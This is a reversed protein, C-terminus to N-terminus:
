EGPKFILLYEPRAADDTYVVAEDYNVTLNPEGVVSDYGPPAETLSHDKHTVKCAKGMIVESLIMAHYPSGGYEKIYDYSKSSTASTYIGMGFRQFGSHGGDPKGPTKAKDVLFSNKLIGCMACQEDTCFDANDDGICCRRTTGHWRRRPNGKLEKYARFRAVHNKRSYVKYIKVVDGPLPKKETPPHLWKERFLAAIERFEEHSSPIELLVPTSEYVDDRCRASCFDSLKGDIEFKPHGGCLLCSDSARKHNHHIQGRRDKNVTGNHAEACTRGCFQHTRGPEVYVPRQHCQKCLPLGAPRAPEDAFSSSACGM